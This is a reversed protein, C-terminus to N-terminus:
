VKEIEQIFRSWTYKSKSKTVARRFNWIASQTGDSDVWRVGKTLYPEIADYVDSKSGNDYIIVGKPPITQALVSAIAECM